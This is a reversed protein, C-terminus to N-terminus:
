PYFVGSTPVALWRVPHLGGGERSEVRQRKVFISGERRAGSTPVALVAAVRVLRLDTRKLGRSSVSRLDLGGAAAM